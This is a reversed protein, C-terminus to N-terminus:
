WAIRRYRALQNHNIATLKAILADLRQEDTMTKGSYTISTDGEKVTEIAAELDFDALGGTTKKRRLFDGISLDVAMQFLGEPVESLNCQDKIYNETRENIFELAWEDEPTVTYGFFVLWNKIAELM